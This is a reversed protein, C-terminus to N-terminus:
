QIWGQERFVAALKTAIQEATRNADAEVSSGFEGAVDAAGGVAAATEVGSLAAGAGMTEAMGPKRSSEAVTAFEAVLHLGDPTAEHVQVQTQVTTGGAGLGIVMRRLRNGEDITVFQGDVALSNPPISAGSVAREAPFGLKQIEEVLRRSLASAVAQGVQREADSTDRGHLLTALRSGPARDLKVEQPTVAFDSVVVMVPRPLRESAVQESQVTTRACGTLLVIGLVAADRTLIRM